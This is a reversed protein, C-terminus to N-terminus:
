TAPDINLPVKLSAVPVKQVRERARLRMAQSTPRIVAMNAIRGRRPLSESVASPRGRRFRSVRSEPIAGDAPQLILCVRVPVDTPSCRRSSARSPTAWAWPVMACTAGRARPPAETAQGTEKVKRRQVQAESVTTGVGKATEQVGVGVQNSPIKKAGQEVQSMGEKVKTDDAPIAFTPVILSFIVVFLTVVGFRKM